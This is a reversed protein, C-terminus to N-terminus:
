PSGPDEPTQASANIQLIQNVFLANSSQQNDLLPDAVTQEVSIQDIKKHKKFGRWQNLIKQIKRYWALPEIVSKKRLEALRRNQTTLKVKSSIILEITVPPFVKDTPFLDFHVRLELPLRSKHINM